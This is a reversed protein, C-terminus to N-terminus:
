GGRRRAGARRTMVWALEGCQRGEPLVEEPSESCGGRGAASADGRSSSCRILYIDDLVLGTKPFRGVFARMKGEEDPSDKELELVLEGTSADRFMFKKM